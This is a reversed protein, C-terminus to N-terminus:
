LDLVILRIFKILRIGCTYYKLDQSRTRGEKRGKGGNLWDCLLGRRQEGVHVDLGDVLPGRALGELHDQLGRGGHGVGGM